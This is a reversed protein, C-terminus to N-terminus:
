LFLIVVSKVCMETILYRVLKMVYVLELVGSIRGRIGEAKKRELENLVLAKKIIKKAKKAPKSNFKVREYDNLTNGINSTLEM